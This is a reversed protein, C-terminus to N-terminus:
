FNSVKFLRLFRKIRMILWGAFVYPSKKKKPQLFNITAGVYLLSISSLRVNFWWRTLVFLLVRSSMLFWWDEAMGWAYWILTMTLEVTAAREKPSEYNEQKMRPAFLVHVCVLLRKVNFTNFRKWSSNQRGKWTFLCVHQHCTFHISKM